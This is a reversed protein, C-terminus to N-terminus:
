LGSLQTWLQQSSGIFKQTIMNPCYKRTPGAYKCPIQKNLNATVMM